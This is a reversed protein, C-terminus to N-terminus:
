RGLQQSVLVESIGHTAFLPRLYEITNYSTVSSVVQVDTWRKYNSVSLMKGQIPGAYNIHLHVREWLRQSQGSEHM